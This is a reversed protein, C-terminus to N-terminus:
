KVSNATEVAANACTRVKVLLEQMEAMAITYNIYYQKKLEDIEPYYDPIPTIERLPFMREREERSIPIWTPEPLKEAPPELNDCLPITTPQLVKISRM